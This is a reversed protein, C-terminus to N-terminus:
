FCSTENRGKHKAKRTYAKKNKAIYAIHTHRLDRIFTDRRKLENPNITGVRIVM